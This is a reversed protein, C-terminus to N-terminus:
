SSHYEGAYRVYRKKLKERGLFGKMGLHEEEGFIM